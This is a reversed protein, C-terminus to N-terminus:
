VTESASSYSQDDSDKELSADEELSGALAADMADALQKYEESSGSFDPYM